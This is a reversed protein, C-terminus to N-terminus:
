IVKTETGNLLRRINVRHTLLIIVLLSAYFYLLKPEFFLSIIPMCATAILNAVASIKSFALVFTAIAIGVLAMPINFALTVGLATAVGKGGTFKLWPSFVHGAVAALAILLTKDSLDFLQLALYVPLYGKLVDGILVILAPKLGMVRWSNAFGINGSGHKQIDLGKLRGIIKGFPISGLLYSLIFLIYFNM